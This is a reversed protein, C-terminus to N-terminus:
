EDLFSTEFSLIEAVIESLNLFFLLPFEGVIDEVIIMEPLFKM